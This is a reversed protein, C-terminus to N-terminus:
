LVRVALIDVFFDIPLLAMGAVRFLVHNPITDRGHHFEVLEVLTESSKRDIDQNKGYKERNKTKFDDPKEV